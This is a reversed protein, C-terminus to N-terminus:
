DVDLGAAHLLLHLLQALDLRRALADRLAREADADIAAPRDLVLPQADVCRGHAARLALREVLVRARAASDRLEVLPADPGRMSALLASVPLGARSPGKAGILVSM